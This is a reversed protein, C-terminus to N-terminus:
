KSDWGAQKGGTPHFCLAGPLVARHSAGVPVGRPVFREGLRVLEQLAHLDPLRHRLVYGPVSGSLLNRYQNHVDVSVSITLCAVWQM